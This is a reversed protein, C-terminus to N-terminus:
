TAFKFYRCVVLRKEFAFALWYLVRWDRFGYLPSLCVNFSLSVCLGSLLRWFGVLLFLFLELERQCHIALNPAWDCFFHLFVLPGIFATSWLLINSWKLGRDTLSALCSAPVIWIILRGFEFAIGYRWCEAFRGVRSNPLAVRIFLRRPFSRSTKKKIYGSDLQVLKMERFFSLHRSHNLAVTGSVSGAVIRKSNRMIVAWVVVTRDCRYSNFLALKETMKFADVTVLAFWLYEGSHKWLVHAQNVIFTMVM